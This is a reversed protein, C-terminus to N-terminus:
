SLRCYCLTLTTGNLGGMWAGMVCTSIAGFITAKFESLRWRQGSVHARCVHPSSSPVLAHAHQPLPVPGPRAFHTRAQHMLTLAM